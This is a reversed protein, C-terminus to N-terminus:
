KHLKRTGQKLLKAHTVIHGFIFLVKTDNMSHQSLKKCNYKSGKCGTYQLVPSSIVNVDLHNKCLNRM